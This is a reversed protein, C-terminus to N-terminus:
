VGFSISYVWAKPLGLIECITDSRMWVHLKAQKSISLTKRLILKAQKETKAHGIIERNNVIPFM